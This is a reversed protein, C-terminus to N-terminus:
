SHQPKSHMVCESGPLKEIRIWKQILNQHVLFIALIVKDLQGLCFNRFEDRITPSIRSYLLLRLETLGLETLECLSEKLIFLAFPFSHYGRKILCILSEVREDASAFQCIHANKYNHVGYPYRVLERIPLFRCETITMPDLPNVLVIFAQGAVFVLSFIITHFKDRNIIRRLPLFRTM